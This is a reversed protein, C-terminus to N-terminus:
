IINWVVIYTALIISLIKFSFLLSEVVGQYGKRDLANKFQSSNEFEITSAVHRDPIVPESRWGFEESFDVGPVDLGAINQLKAKITVTEIFRQYFRYTGEKGYHTLAYMSAPGFLLGFSAFSPELRTLAAITAAMIAVITSIFFVVRKQHSELFYQEELMYIKILEYVNEKHNNQPM